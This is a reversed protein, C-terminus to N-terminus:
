LCDIMRIEKIDFTSTDPTKFSIRNSNNLKNIKIDNNSLNDHFSNFFLNVEKLTKFYPLMINKINYKNAFNIDQKFTKNPNININTRTTGCKKCIEEHNTSIFEDSNCVKCLQDSVEEINKDDEDKIFGQKLLCNILFNRQEEVSKGSISKQLLLATLQKSM